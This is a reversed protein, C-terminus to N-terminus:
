CQDNHFQHCRAQNNCAAVAVVQQDELSRQCHDLRNQIDVVSAKCRFVM